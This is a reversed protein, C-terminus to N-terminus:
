AQRMARYWRAQSMLPSGDKKTLMSISSSMEHSQMSIDWSVIYDHSDDTLVKDITGKLGDVSNSIIRTGVNMKSM